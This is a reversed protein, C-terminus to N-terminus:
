IVYMSGSLQQCKKMVKKPFVANESCRTCWGFSCKKPNELYSIYKRRRELIYTSSNEHIGSKDRKWSWMLLKGTCSVTVSLTFIPPYPRHPPAQSIAHRLKVHRLSWGPSAWASCERPSDTFVLLSVCRSHVSSSCLINFYGHQWWKLTGSM